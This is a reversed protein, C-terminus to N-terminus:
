PRRDLSLLARAIQNVAYEEQSRSAESRPLSSLELHILEHVVTFELDALLDAMPLNYDAPDLVKIVAKKKDSDWHINGLTRPKLDNSRVVNVTINWEELSLRKQWLWLRETAYSQAVLAKERSETQSGVQEAPLPSIAFGSSFVLLLFLGLPGPSFRLRM